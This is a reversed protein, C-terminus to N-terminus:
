ETHRQLLEILYGDPDRVFAVTVPWRDLQQPEGESEYGAEIVKRYVGEADDVNFYIKWLANGHDIPGDQDHHRALQIRGGGEHAALVVESFDDTEIRTQVPLGILDEYFRVSRELDTVNICYQAVSTPM